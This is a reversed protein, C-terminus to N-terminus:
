GKEAVVANTKKFSRVALFISIITLLAGTIFPAGPFHIGTETSTFYAFLTTM